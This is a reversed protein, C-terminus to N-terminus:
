YDEARHLSALRRGKEACDARQLRHNRRSRRRRDSSVERCRVAVEDAAKLTPTRMGASKKNLATQILTVIPEVSRTAVPVHQM